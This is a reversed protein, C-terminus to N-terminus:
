VYFYILSLMSICFFILPPNTSVTAMGVSSEYCKPPLEVQCLSLLHLDEADVMSYGFASEDFLENICCGLDEVLELLSNRCEKTCERTIKVGSCGEVVGTGNNKFLGMVCLEQSSHQVCARFVVETLSDANCDQRFQTVPKLCNESCVTSYIAGAQLLNPKESSVLEAIEQYAKSCVQPYDAFLQDVDDSTCSGFLQETVANVSLLGSAMVIMAYNLTTYFVVLQQM